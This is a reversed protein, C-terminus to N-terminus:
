SWFADWAYADHPTLFWEAAKGNEIRVTVTEHTDLERGNRSARVRNYYAVHREGALVDINEVNLTGKSLEFNRQVNALADAKGRYTGSLINKGPFHMVVDPTWLATLQDFDGKAFAAFVRQALKRNDLITQELASNQTTKTQM